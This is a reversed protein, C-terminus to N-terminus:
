YGPEPEGNGKIGKKPLVRGDAMVLHDYGAWDSRRIEDLCANRAHAIRETRKTLRDALSGLDIVKGRRGDRLWRELISLSDDSTDSVVFVFSTRAYSRAFRALNELVQPLHIACNRALGAFM